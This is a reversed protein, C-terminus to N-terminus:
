RAAARGGLRPQRAGHLLDPTSAEALEELGAARAGMAPTPALGADDLVTRWRHLWDHRRLSARVANSRVLALRDPQPGPERARGRARAARLVAPHGRRALRFLGRGRAHGHPQGADRCRRRRGRLLTREPAEQGGSRRQRDPSDTIKSTFFFRSRKLLNALLARHEGHDRMVSSHVSDYVYAVRRSTVLELPERHVAPSTRGYGLLDIGRPPLHPLPSFAVADVGVPMFVTRTM